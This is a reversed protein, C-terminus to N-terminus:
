ATTAPLWFTGTGASQATLDGAEELTRLAQITRGPSMGYVDAIERTAVRGHRRVFEPIPRLEYADLDPAVQEIANEVASVSQYGEIWREEGDATVRFTPFSRVRNRRVFQRDREFAARAEDSDFDVAFREADLGVDEALDILVDARSIDRRDAAVAERLRRLYRHALNSGQYEAAKYAVSAPYSSCPPNERWLDPDVPMGHHDTAAMWRDAVGRFDTSNGDGVADAFTKVDEILGGMVFEVAIQDRYREATRRVIPEAGWSWTCFPDTVQTLTIASM